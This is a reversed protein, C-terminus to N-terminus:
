MAVGCHLYFPSILMGFMSFAERCEAIQAPTLLLDALAKAEELEASSM